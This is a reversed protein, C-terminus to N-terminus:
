FSKQKESKRNKIETKVTYKKILKKNDTKERKTESQSCQM